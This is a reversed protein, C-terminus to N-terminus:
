KPITFSFKSGLGETSEVGVSGNHLEAIHKVIALGLGTGGLERSRAKDVRYFREFIRALDREPIGIGSDEVTIRLSDGQPASYLSISGNQKNFKIANDILNTFVQEIKKKDARLLLDPPINNEVNLGKEKIQSKFAFLVEDLLDKIHFKSLDLKIEKSEIHSLDLLDDILSSLRDTHNRIIELFHRGNEKDELAGSLLTEVFGKISTLPTKLEHSVNAVFDRRMTELKRIETIDHIVLLCGSVSKMEFIPSANIQFVKQVPWSLVLEQSIFEGKKLVSNIVEAVDNNRLGELFFKGEVEVKLCDFIREITPNISIIRGNRDVVIVGEIMSGLIAQIRGQEKELAIIKNKLSNLTANVAEALRGMEDRSYIHIKQELDGGSVKNLTNIIEEIKKNKNFFLM